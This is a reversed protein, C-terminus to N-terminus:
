RAHQVGSSVKPARRQCLVDVGHIPDALNDRGFLLDQLVDRERKERARLDAHEPQVPGPFRSQELDHRADIGLNQTLCARLRVDLDAVQRLFGLEVRFLIDAAVDLFANLFRDICQCSQLLDICVIGLGLSVEICQGLLLSTELINNLGFVRM